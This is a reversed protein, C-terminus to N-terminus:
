CPSRAARRPRCRRCHRHATNARSIYRFPTPTAASEPARARAAATPRRAHDLARGGIHQGRSSACSVPRAPRNPAVIAPANPSAQTVHAGGLRKSTPGAAARDRTGPRRPGSAASRRPSRTRACLRHRRVAGAQRRPRRRARRTRARRARTRLRPRCGHRQRLAEPIPRRGSAGGIHGAGRRQHDGRLSGICDHDVQQQLM